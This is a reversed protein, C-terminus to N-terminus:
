KGEEPKPKELDAIRALAVKLQTQTSALEAAFTAARNAMMALQNSHEQQLAAIRIDLDSPGQQVPAVPEVKETMPKKGEQYALWAWSLALPWNLWPVTAIFITAVAGAWVSMCLSCGWPVRPFRRRIPAWLADVTFLSTLRFAALVAILAHLWEM